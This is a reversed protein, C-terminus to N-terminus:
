ASRGIAASGIEKQRGNLVPQDRVPAAGTSTQLGQAIATAARRLRLLSRKMEKETFRISPGALSMVALPYGGSTDGIVPVAISSIGPNVEHSSLSYSRRRIEALDRLFDDMDRSRRGKTAALPHDREALRHMDQEPLMALLMKAAAGASLPMPVMQNNYVWRHQHHSVVQEVLLRREAFLVHLGVTEGIDDRVALMEPQAHQVLTRWFLQGGTLDHMLTGLAFVDGEAGRHAQLLRVEVLNAVLRHATSKPMGMVEGIERVTLEGRLAVLQVVDLAKRLLSAGL